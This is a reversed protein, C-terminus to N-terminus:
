CFLIRGIRRKGAMPRIQILVDRDLLNLFRLLRDISFQELRGRVLSSIKPQDIGLRAAAQSQTLGADAILIAIQRALEAKTLREEPNSLGLDAFVNGSGRTVRSRTNGTSVPLTRAKM